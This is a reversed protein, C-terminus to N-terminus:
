GFFSIEQNLVCPVKCERSGGEQRGQDKEKRSKRVDGEQPLLGARASEVAEKAERVEVARTHLEDAFFDKAKKVQAVRLVFFSLPLDQLLYSMPVQNKKKRADGFLFSVSFDGCHVVTNNFKM